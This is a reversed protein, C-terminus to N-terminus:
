AMGIRNVGLSVIPPLKVRRWVSGTTAAGLKQANVPYAHNLSVGLWFWRERFGFGLWWYWRRFRWDRLLSTLRDFRLLFWEPIYNLIIKLLM